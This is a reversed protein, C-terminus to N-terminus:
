RSPGIRVTARVSTDSRGETGPPRCYEATMYLVGGLRLEAWVMDGCRDSSWDSRYYLFLHDTIRKGVTLRMDALDGTLTDIKLIEIPLAKVLGRGLELTAMSLFASLVQGRAQAAVGGAAGAPTGLAIISLINSEDMPPDSSFSLQPEQASGDIKVTIRSEPRTRLGLSSLDLGAIDYTAAIRLQPDRDIDGTFDIRSAPDLLLRKGYVEVSESPLLIAGTIGIRGNRTHIRLGPEATHPRVLARVEGVALFLTPELTVAKPPITITVDVTAGTTFAPRAISEPPEEPAGRVLTVGTPLGIPRVARSSMRPSLSAHDVTLNGRIIPGSARGSLDIRGSVLLEADRRTVIRARSLDLAGRLTIAAPSFGDLTAGLTAEIGHPPADQGDRGPPEPFSLGTVHVKNGGEFLVGLTVDERRFGIAPVSLDSLQVSLAGDLRPHAATGAIEVHGEVQGRTAGFTTRYPAVLGELDFSRASLAGEFPTNALDPLEGALMSTTGVPADVSAVVLGAPLVSADEAGVGAAAEDQTLVLRARTERPGVVVNAFLDNAVNRSRVRAALALARLAGPLRTTAAVLEAALTRIRMAASVTPGEPGGRATIAGSLLGDPFPQSLTHRLGPDLRWLDTTRLDPVEIQLATQPDALSREVAEWPAETMQGLNPVHVDATFWQRGDDGDVCQALGLLADGVAIFQLALTSLPPLGPVQALRVSLEFPSQGVAPSQRLVLALSAELARLAPGLFPAAPTQGLSTAPVRLSFRRLAQTLARWLAPGVEPPPASADRIGAVAALTEVLGPGLDGEFSLLPAGTARTWDGQIAHGAPTPTVRVTVDGDSFDALALRQMRLDLTVDPARAPGELRLALALAGGLPVPPVIGLPALMRALESVDPDRVTASLQLPDASRWALGPPALSLVAPLRGNLDLGGSAGRWRGEVRVATGDPGSELVIAGTPSGLARGARLAVSASCTPGSLPGTLGLSGSLTGGIGRGALLAKGLVSDITAALEALDLEALLLKAEVSAPEPGVAARAAVRPLNLALRGTVEGSDPARPRIILSEAAIRTDSVTVSQAEVLARGTERDRLALAKLDATGRALDVEGEAALAFVADLAADLRATVRGSGLRWAAAVREFVRGALVEPVKLALGSVSGQGALALPRGPGGPLVGAFTTAAQATAGEPAELRAVEAEGEFRVPGLVGEAANVRASVRASEAQVQPAVSGLALAALRLRVDGELPSSASPVEGPWRATAEVEAHRLIAHPGTVGSVSLRSELSHGDETPRVTFVGALLEAARGGELSVQSLEPRATAEVLGFDPSLALDVPMQAEALHLGHGRVERASIEGGFGLGEADAHGRFLVAATAEAELGAAAVAGTKLRFALEPLEVGDWRSELRLDLQELSVPGLGGARLTGRARGKVGSGVTLEFGGPGGQLVLGRLSAQDLRGEIDPEGLLGLWPQLGMDDVWVRLGWGDRLPRRQPLFRGEVTAHGVTGDPTVAVIDLDAQLRHAADGPLGFGHAVFSMVGRVERAEAADGEARVPAVRGSGGVSVFWGGLGGAAKQAAHASLELVGHRGHLEGTAVVEGGAHVVRARGSAGGPLARALLGRPADAISLAAIELVGDLEPGLSMAGQAELGHPGVQLNLRDVHLGEPDIRGDTRLALAHGDLLWSLTPSELREVDVHLDRWRLGRPDLAFVFSLGLGRAHLTGDPLLGDLAGDELVVRKVDVEWPSPTPDDPVPVRLAFARALPIDAGGGERPRMLVGRPREVRVESVAVRQALLAFPDLEASIKEVAIIEAGDAGYIAVGELTVDFPLNGGLREVSIRGEFLANAQSVGIRRVGDQVAEAQLAALVGGVFGVAGIMAIAVCQAVRAFRGVPRSPPELGM